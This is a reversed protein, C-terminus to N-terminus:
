SISCSIMIIQEYGCVFCLIYGFTRTAAGLGVKSGGECVYIASLKGLGRNGVEWGMWLM